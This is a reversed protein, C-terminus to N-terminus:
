DKKEADDAEKEKETADDESKPVIMKKKLEMVPLKHKISRNFALYNHRDQFPKSKKM